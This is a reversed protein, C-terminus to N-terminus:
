PVCTVTLVGASNRTLTLIASAKTGDAAGSVGRGASPVRAGSSIGHNTCRMAQGEMPNAITTTTPATFTMPARPGPTSNKAGGGCAALALGATATIVLATAKM